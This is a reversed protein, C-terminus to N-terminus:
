QSVVIADLGTQGTQGPLISIVQDLSVIASAKHELNGIVVDGTM